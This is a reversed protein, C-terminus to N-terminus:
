EEVREAATATVEVISSCAMYGALWNSFGVALSHPFSACPWNKHFHFGSTPLFQVSEFSYIMQPISKGVMVILAYETSQQSISSPTSGCYAGYRSENM